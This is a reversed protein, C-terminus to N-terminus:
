TRLQLKLVNVSDDNKQKEELKNKLEKFQELTLLKEGSVKNLNDIIDLYIIASELNNKNIDANFAEIYNDLRMFYEKEDFSTLYLLPKAFFQDGELLSLNILNKVLTEYKLENIDELYNHLYINANQIDGSKLSRFVSVLSNRKDYIFLKNNEQTKKILKQLLLIIPNSLIQEENGSQYVINLNLALEYNRCDIMRFFNKRNKSDTKILVKNNDIDILDSALKRIYFDMIDLQHMTAQEDYFDIIAEYDDNNIFDIIMLKNNYELDLIKKLLNKVILGEYNIEKERMFNNNKSYAVRFKQNTSAKVVEKDITTNQLIEYSNQNIDKYDFNLEDLLKNYEDPIKTIFSLLYVYFLNNNLYINNPSKILEILYNLAKEYNEIKIYYFLLTSAIKINSYGAKSCYSFCSNALDCNNNFVLLEKGYEYLDHIAVFNYYGFGTSVIKGNDVLEKIAANDFGCSNLLKKSLTRKNIVCDYLKDLKVQDIMSVVEWIKYIIFIM